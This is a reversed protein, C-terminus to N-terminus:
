GGREILMGEHEPQQTTVTQNSDVRTKTTTMSETAILTHLWGEIPLLPGEECPHSYEADPLYVDEQGEEQCPPM